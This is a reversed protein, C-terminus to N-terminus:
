PEDGSGYFEEFMESYERWRKRRDEDGFFFFAGLAGKVSM